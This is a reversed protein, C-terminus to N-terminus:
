RPASLLRDSPLNRAVIGSQTTAEEDKDVEQFVTRHYEDGLDQV